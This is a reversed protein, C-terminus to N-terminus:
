IIVTQQIICNSLLLSSVPAEVTVLVKNFAEITNAREAIKKSAQSGFSESWADGLNEKCFERLFRALKPKAKSISDSEQVIYNSVNGILPISPM